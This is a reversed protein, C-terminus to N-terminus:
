PSAHSSRRDGARRRGCGRPAQAREHSIVSRVPCPAGRHRHGTRHLPCQPSPRARSSHPGPRPRSRSSPSCVRTASGSSRSAVRAFSRECRRTWESAANGARSTSCARSCSLTRTAPSCPMLQCRNRWTAILWRVADAPERRRRWVGHGNGQDAQGVNGAHPDHGDVM